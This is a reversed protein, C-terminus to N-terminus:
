RQSAEAEPQLDIQIEDFGLTHYLEGNRVTASERDIKIVTSGELRDSVSLLRGNIIAQPKTPSWIIAELRLGAFIKDTRQKLIKKTKNEKDLMPWNFPNRLVVPLHFQVRARNLIEPRITLALPSEARLLAPCVATSIAAIITATIILNRKM